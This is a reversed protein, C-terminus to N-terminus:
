NAGEKEFGTAVTDDGSVARLLRQGNEVLVKGACQIEDEAVEDHRLHVAVFEDTAGFLKMGAQGRHDDGAGDIGEIAGEM